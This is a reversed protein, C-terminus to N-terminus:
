RRAAGKFQTSYCVLKCPEVSALAVIHEEDAQVHFGTAIKGSVEDPVVKRISKLLAGSGRVKYLAEYATWYRTFLLSPFSDADTAMEKPFQGQVQKLVRPYCKPDRLKEIDVGIDHRGFGLLLVGNSHSVSTCLNSRSDPTVIAPRRNPQHRILVDEESAGIYKAVIQRLMVRSSAYELQRKRNRMREIHKYEEHTLRHKFTDAESVSVKWLHVTGSSLVPTDPPEECWGMDCCHFATSQIYLIPNDSFMISHVM